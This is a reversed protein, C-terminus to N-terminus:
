PYNDGVSPPPQDPKAPAPKASDGASPLQRAPAPAAHDPDVKDLYATLKAIEDKASETKKEAKEWYESNKQENRYATDYLSAWSPLDPVPSLWDKYAKYGIAAVVLIAILEGM